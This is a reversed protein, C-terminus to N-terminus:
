PPPSNTATSLDIQVHGKDNSVYTAESSGNREEQSKGVRTYSVTTGM